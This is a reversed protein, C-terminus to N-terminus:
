KYKWNRSKGESIWEIATELRKLRTAETKAEELWTIYEKKQSPSFKEFQEKVALNQNLVETFYPPVLLERKEAQIKNRAPAKVGQLNLSLAHRIYQILIEDEPLDALSTIRGLSGATDAERNLIKFPDDMLAEKWFGFACHQKFAALQCVPGDHDFFPCSWKITEKLEPSAQHVLERLHTLIPKAFDASKAIYADVRSDYQEMNCYLLDANIAHGFIAVPSHNVFVPQRCEFSQLWAYGHNRKIFFFAPLLFL